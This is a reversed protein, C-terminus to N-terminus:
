GLKAVIDRMTDIQKSIVRVQSKLEKITGDKNVLEGLAYIETELVLMEANWEDAIELPPTHSRMQGLNAVVEAVNIAVRLVGGNDVAKLLDALDKEMDGLADNVGAAFIIPSEPLDESPSPSPAEEVASQTTEPTPSPAPQSIEPSASSEASPADSDSGCSNFTIIGVVVVFPIFWKKKYYPVPAKAM